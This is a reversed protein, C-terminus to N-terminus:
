RHAKRGTRIGFGELVPLIREIPLGVVNTRSGSIEKIFLSSSSDEANYGGAKDLADGSALYDDIHDKDLNNFTVLSVEFGYESRGHGIVFFGTYVQHTTGSLKMLFSRAEDIDTPKEIIQKDLVVITDAALVVGGAKSAVDL